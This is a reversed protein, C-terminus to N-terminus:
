FILIFVIFYDIYMVEMVTYFLTHEIGYVFKTMYLLKWLFVNVEIVTQLYDHVIVEMATYLRQEIVENITYLIPLVYFLKCPLISNTMYM